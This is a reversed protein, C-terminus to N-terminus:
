KFRSNEQNKWMDPNNGLKLKIPESIAKLKQDIEESITIEASVANETIEEPSRAGSLISCVGKQALLWATAIQPMTYKTENAIEQIQALATFVENECGDEHHGANMHHYDYYRTIRLHSPVDDITKYMGTLLGQALGSYGVISMNMSLSTPLLEDEIARWFLSYPLQHADISSYVDKAEKLLQLNGKGFNCVGISRIKGSRKLKELQTLSDSLAIAPNPWHIYYLDIYDTQLNKLSKECSKIIDDPKLHTWDVKTAIVAETRRGKLAKGLVRESEGDGYGEATDMFNIGHELAAHVTSISKEEPQDGWYSGGAFPWCGLAVSSVSISTKGLPHYKM